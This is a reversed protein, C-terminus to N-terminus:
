AIRQCDAEFTDLVHQANENDVENYAAIHLMVVCERGEVAAALTTFTAGSQSCSWTQVQGSYPSRNFDQRSIPECASLENFGSEVLQDETYSQALERSAVIYTGPVGGINEWTNVDTSATIAPGVGEGMSAKEGGFTGDESTIHDSWETPVEVSLTGTDDKVLAYGPEPETEQEPAEETSPGSGVTITVMLNDEAEGSGSPEQDVVVGKDEEPSEQTEAKVEFGASQLTEEAEQQSMGVVDPLTTESAVEDEGQLYPVLAWFILVIGVLVLGALGLATLVWPSVKRRRHEGNETGGSRSSYSAQAPSSNNAHKSVVKDYNPPTGRVWANGNHYNWEGTKRSKAWWRGEDDQVMLQQRQADFEEDSITGSDRRRKLEAYRRDAEQFGIKDERFDM